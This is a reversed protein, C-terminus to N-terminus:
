INILFGFQMLNKIKKSIALFHLLRLIFFFSNFNLYFRNTSSMLASCCPILEIEKGLIQLLSFSTIDELAFGIPHRNLNHKVTKPLNGFKINTMSIVLEIAVKIHLKFVVITEVAM